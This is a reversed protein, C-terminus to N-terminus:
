ISRLIERASLYGPAGTIGGGPHCGASGIYLGKVPTSFGALGRAPRLPGLRGLVMDVHTVNGGTPLGRVAIDENTLVQRGIELTDLGDYYMSAMDLMEQGAQAKLADNWGGDPVTPGTNAYLYFTDQGEPAQSPDAVTPIVPWLSYCLPSPLLGAASRMYGKEMAAETGLMHSAFRLDLGDRRWKNHRAMGLKGSLALDVKLQGYNANNVPISRIRDEMAPSLTGAPLLRELTKRPDCSGLVARKATIERGDVLRVGSARGAKLLIEAVPAHTLITGGKSRLRNALANPIAQVGGKPRRSPYRHMTALWLFCAATGSQSPAVTAGAVGHMCDRIVQHKFREDIVEAASLFPFSGLEKLDGRARYAEKAARWLTKMDPRVPNMVALTLFVNAFNNLVRSFEIYAKADVESIRRIDEVTQKIDHGFAISPGEPHLYVHGPDVTVRELGYRELELERSPPFSDWFFADVSYSSILHNPAGPIVASTATLGGVQGLAEVVMVDLGSDILYNAAVLGNHGAGIVLADCSTKQNNM